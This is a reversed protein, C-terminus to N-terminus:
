ALSKLFLQIKYNTTLMKEKYEEETLAKALSRQDLTESWAEEAIELLFNYRKNKLKEDFVTERILAEYFLTKNKNYSRHFGYGWVGELCHQQRLYFSKNYCTSM